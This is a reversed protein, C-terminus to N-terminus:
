CNSNYYNFNEDKSDDYDDIANLVNRITIDELYSKLKSLEPKTDIMIQAKTLIEKLEKLSSDYSDLMKQHAEAAAENRFTEGDTTEYQEIKKIM